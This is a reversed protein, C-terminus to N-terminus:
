EEAAVTRAYDHSEKRPSPANLRGVAREAAANMRLETAKARALEADAQARLLLGHALDYQGSGILRGAGAMETTARDLYLRAWPIQQSGAAVAQTIASSARLLQDTPPPTAACGLAGAGGVALSAALGLISVVKARMLVEGGHVTM